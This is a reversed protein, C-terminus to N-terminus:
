TKSEANHVVVNEVLYTNYSDVDLNYVTTDQLDLREIINTIYVKEQTNTVVEINLELPDVDIWHENKAMETDIAQWGKVTLIPHSATMTMIKGNSLVVDYIDSKHKFMQVSLITASEFKAEQENYSMVDSGVLLQEIPKITGNSLLVPTGAIFCGGGTRKSPITYLSSYTSYKTVSVTGSYDKSYSYDKSKGSSDYASVTGTVTGSYPVTETGDRKYADTISTCAALAGNWGATYGSEYTASIDYSTTENNNGTPVTITKAGATYSVKGSATAYGTKYWDSIDVGMIVTSNYSAYVHGSTGPTSPSVTLQLPIESTSGEGGHTPITMSTSEGTGLSPRLYAKAAADWGANFTASIDLKQDFNIGLLSWNGPTMVYKEGETYVIHEKAANWGATASLTTVAFSDSSAWEDDIPNGDITRTYKIQVASLAGGSVTGTEIVGTFKIGASKHKTCNLVGWGTVVCKVSTASDWSLSVSIAQDFSKTFDIFEGGVYLSEIWCNGDYDVWFKDNARFAYDTGNYTSHIYARKGGVERYINDQSVTWNGVTAGSMTVWGANSISFNGSSVTFTGGSNISIDAGSNIKIGDKSLSMSTNSANTGIIVSSNGILMLTGTSQLAVYNGDITLGSSKVYPVSMRGAAIDNAVLTGYAADQLMSEQTVEGYTKTGNLHETVEVSWIYPENYVMPTHIIETGTSSDKTTTGGTTSSAPVGHYWTGNDVGPKSNTSTRTYMKYTIDSLDALRGESSVGSYTISGDEAVYKIVSWVYADGGNTAFKLTTTWSNSLDKGVTVTPASNSNTTTYYKTTYNIGAKLRADLNVKSDGTLFIQDAAVTFKKAKIELGNAMNFQIGTNASAWNSNDAIYLMNTTSTSVTATNDLRLTPSLVKFAGSSGIEFTAQSENTIEIYAGNFKSKVVAETSQGSAMDKAVGILIKKPTMSILSRASATGAALAIYDRKIQVGSATGDLGLKLNEYSSAVNAIALIIGEAKIDVAGTKSETTVGLLIREPTMEFGSGTISSTTSSLSITKGTGIFIGESRNIRIASAEDKSTSYINISGSSAVNIDAMSELLIGDKNISVSHTGTYADSTTLYIGGGSAINVSTQGSLNLNGGDNNVKTATIEINKGVMSILAKANLTINNEASLTINGAVSDVILAAGRIDAIVNEASVRNWGNTSKKADDTSALAKTEYVEYWNRTAIYTVGTSHKWIDGRKFYEGHTAGSYENPTLNAQIDTKFSNLITDNKVNIEAVDAASKVAATIISGAETFIDTLTEQIKKVDTLPMQAFYDDWVLANNEDGILIQSAILTGTLFLTNKASDFYLLKQTSSDSIDGKQKTIRFMGMYNGDVQFLFGRGDTGLGGNAVFTRAIVDGTFSGNTAYVDGKIYLGNQNIVMKVDVGNKGDVDALQAPTTTASIGNLNAGIALITNGIKYDTNHRRDQSYTQLKFNNTNIYLEATSGLEIGDNAIRVYSGTVASNNTQAEKVSRDLASRLNAASATGINVSGLGHGLTIGNQNIVAAAIDAGSGVALGISDKTFKAGILSSNAMGTVDGTSFNDGAAIIIYEDKMEIATSNSVNKQVNSFGFMLHEKNIEISAGKANLIDDDPLIGDNKSWGTLAAAGDNAAAESAYADDWNQTAVYKGLIEFYSSYDNGSQILNTYYYLKTKDAIGPDGDYTDHGVASIRRIRIWIDGQQFKIKHKPGVYIHDSSTGSYIRIGAGAGIWVGKEGDIQVASTGDTDGSSSLMTISSSSKMLIESAGFEMRTPTIIIKSINAQDKQSYEGAILNIGKTPILDGTTGNEDREYLSCFNLESGGINVSKNGVIDVRENAAMYINGGSKMSIYNEALLSIIGQDADLNLSAGYIQALTGDWTRVFGSTTDNTRSGNCTAMYRGIENDDEDTQIWIDGFRYTDPKIPGRYVTTSLEGAVDQAFSSLISANDLSVNRMRNLASNSDALIQGAETFLSTLKDLVVQSSDFHSDLYADLIRANNSLTSSFADASLAIGGAIASGLMTSSKQMAETSAVIKSFLDEFKTKYNQVTVSDKDPNDLDLEVESIYGFTNQLKLEIDTIMVLQALKQYLVHTLGANLINPTIEYSVKPYANERSVEQADLYIAVDANSLVYNVRLEQNLGYKFITEPKLAIFYECYWNGEREINRTNISYDEYKELLAGSYRIVLKNSDNTKLALSSFKLRPYVVDCENITAGGFRWYEQPYVSTANTVSTSVVGTGENLKTSIKAIRPNGRQSYMQALQAESLTKAGVLILAPYITNEKRVFRVLAQSNFHWVQMNKIDNANADAEIYNNNFIFSYDSLDAKIKDWISSLNVCPYYTKTETIGLNYYIDQEGSFLEMEWGVAIGDGTNKTITIAPDTNTLTEVAEKADGYDLYDDPQWYGERLAPGMMREFALIDQRKLELLENIRDTTNQITLYLGSIGKNTKEDKEGLITKQKNLNTTDQGLKVEWTKIIQEYYLKPNYKYTLYVASSGNGARQIGRINILNNNDDYEPIFGLIEDSLTQTASSYSRYIHITDAAIGKNTTDLRIYLNGVTDQTILRYDPNSNTISIMGDEDGDLADLSNQLARNLTMQEKATTISKELVAVDAELEPQQEQYAALNNQLRILEDNYTRMKVEYKNIYAYQEETINGIDRMYDFNLIYNERTKNADVNMISHYGTYISDDSVDMVYLKTTLDSADMERSISTSSHPYSFSFVGEQEQLFSNYFVVTRSIIHYNEDYGYEYRCFVSFTEALEQTINYINSNEVSIPRAKEVYNKVLKPGLEATWGAVYSEEYITDSRRNLGTNNFSDWNMSVKYYWTRADVKNVDEPYPVLNIQECWYDINQIPEAGQRTLEWAEYDLEFLEQSLSYNYGIKGLENFALGECKLECKLIDDEHTEEVDTIIFEYVAEDKTAKNLIVKVKRLSVMINGNQTNYWNPNEILKGNYYFYMPITCSFEQTGDISLKMKPNEIRGKQEVDSWKLVTIFSDQLTWLSVEYSRIEQKLFGRQSYQELMLAKQKDTIM